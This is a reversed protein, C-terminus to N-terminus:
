VSPELRVNVPEQRQRFQLRCHPLTIPHGTHPVKCDNAAVTRIVPILFNLFRVSKLPQTWAIGIGIPNGTWTGM